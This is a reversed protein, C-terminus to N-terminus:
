YASGYNREDDVAAYFERSPGQGCEACYASRGTPYYFIKEGKRITRKCKCCASSFRATMWYPDRSQHYM